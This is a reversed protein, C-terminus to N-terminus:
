SGVATRGGIPAGIMVAIWRAPGDGRNSWKHWTGRQVVVDGAGLIKSGHGPLELEVTGELIVDFDITDTRHNGPDNPDHHGTTAMLRGVEGMHARLREVDMGQARSEQSPLEIYKLAIGMGYPDLTISVPEADGGQDVSAVAGGTQWLDGQVMGASGDILV